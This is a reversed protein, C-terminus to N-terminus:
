SYVQQPGGGCIPIGPYAPATPALSLSSYKSCPAPILPNLVGNASPFLALGALTAQYTTINTFVYQGNYNQQTYSIDNNTRFRVGFKMFHKGSTISTFNSFENNITNAYNYGEGAGGTTFASNVQITPAGTGGFDGLRTSQM